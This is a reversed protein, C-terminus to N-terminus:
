SDNNMPNFKHITNLLVATEQEEQAFICVYIKLHCELLASLSYFVVGSGTGRSGWDWSDTTKQVM